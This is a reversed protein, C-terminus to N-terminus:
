LKALFLRREAERRRTLGELEKGGAKNWRLFENAAGQVDGYELKKMLTSKDLAKVGVNFAFCVLADFQCQTVRLERIDLMATVSSEFKALDKKLLAEAGDKTIVDNEKVDPGYHGYGISLYKETPVAKYPVTRLGEFTKILSIAADSIQM